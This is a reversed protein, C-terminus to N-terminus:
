KEFLKKEKYFILEVYFIKLYRIWTFTTKKYLISEINFYQWYFYKWLYLKYNEKKFMSEVHFVDIRCQISGYFIKM